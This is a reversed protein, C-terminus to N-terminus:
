RAAIVRSMDDGKQKSGLSSGFYYGYILGYPTLLVATVLMAEFESRVQAKGMMILITAALTAVVQVTALVRPMWDKLAAERARANATDENNLQLVQIDLKRMETVFAQEQAKLQLLQEPTAVQLATTVEEPTAEPALGLAETVFRAATGALPGGLATAITPAVVGLVQRAGAWVSELAGKM